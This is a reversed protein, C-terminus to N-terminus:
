NKTLTVAGAPATFVLLGGDETATATKTTSGVKVTWTGAAVGSVYYNLTGSGSTTFSFSSTERSASDAFIAAVKGLVAGSAKSSNTIATASLGPDSSSDCVYMANLLVNNTGSATAIEARGWYNDTKDSKDSILAYTKSGVTWNAPKAGGVKTISSGGVVNQLVLRGASNTVTVKSGSISPEEVTHLLFVKQYNSKSTINDYVFFFMPAKTNGTDYVALMRRDCRSLESSSSTSRSLWFLNTISTKCYADAIDGAIYAYKPKTEAADTYGYAYGTTTGM